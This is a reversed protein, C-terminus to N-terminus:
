RNRLARRLDDCLAPFPATAVAATRAVIIIHRAPATLLGTARAAAYLRRRIRNRLVARRAVKRPAVCSVRLVGDPSPAQRVCVFTGCTTRSRRWAAAFATRPLRHARPFM